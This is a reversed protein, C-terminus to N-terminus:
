DSAKSNAIGYDVRYGKAALNTAKISCIKINLNWTDSM